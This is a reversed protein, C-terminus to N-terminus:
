PYPTFHQGLTWHRSCVGIVFPNVFNPLTACARTPKGSPCATTPIRTWVPM